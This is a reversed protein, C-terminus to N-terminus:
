LDLDDFLDNVNSFKQSNKNNILEEAEEIATRTILNPIESSDAEEKLKSDIRINTTTTNSLNVEVCM